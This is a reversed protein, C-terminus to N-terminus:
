HRVDIRVEGGPEQPRWGKAWGELICQRVLGPTVHRTQRSKEEPAKEADRYDTVAVLRQGRGGGDEVVIGM